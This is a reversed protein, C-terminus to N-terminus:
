ACGVFHAFLLMRIMFMTLTTWAQHWQFVLELHELGRRLVALQHLRLLRGLRLPRGCTRWDRDSSGCFVVDWPVCSLVEPVGKGSVVYRKTLEYPRTEWKEDQLPRATMCTALTDALYIVTVAHDLPADAEARKRAFAASYPSWIASYFVALFAFADLIRRLAGNPDLAWGEDDELGVSAAVASELM